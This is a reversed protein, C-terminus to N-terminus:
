RYAAVNHAWYKGRSDSFHVDGFTDLVQQWTIANFKLLRVLVCRWGYTPYYSPLDAKDTDFHTFEPVWGKTFSANTYCKEKNKIEYLAAYNGISKLATSDEAILNPNLKQLRMVLESSHLIKGLQREKNKFDEQDSFRQDSIQKDTQEWMRLMHERDGAPLQERVHLPEVKEPTLWAFCNPQFREGQAPLPTYTTAEVIKNALKQSM